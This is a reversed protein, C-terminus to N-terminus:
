IVDGIYFYSFKKTCIKLWQTKYNYIASALLVVIALVGM